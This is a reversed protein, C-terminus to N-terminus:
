TSMQVYEPDRFKFIFAVPLMFPEGHSQVSEIEHVHFYSLVGKLKLEERQSYIAKAVEKPIFTSM